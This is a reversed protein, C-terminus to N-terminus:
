AALKNIAQRCAAPDDDLYRRVTAVSIRMTEAIISIETGAERLKNIVWRRSSHTSFGQFDM